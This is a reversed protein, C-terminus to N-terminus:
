CINRPPSRRASRARAWTAPYGAASAAARLASADTLAAIRVVV